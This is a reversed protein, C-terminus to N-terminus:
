PHLARTKTLLSKQQLQKLQFQLATIERQQDQVARILVATLQQYRVGNVRGLKDRGVLRDDTQAVEEAILGVQRGLHAPNYEPKLEYSVPKLAMVESLGVDLLEIAQKFRRSSLLCTTTTDVTFIGTGTTWCLTGTQAASTNTILPALLQGDGRVKFSTGGAPPGILLGYDSSNTGAAVQIGLSLGTSAGGNINLANSSNVGNVTATTKITTGAASNVTLMAGTSNSSIAVTNASSLYVGNTPITASSVNVNTCCAPAGDSRLFTSASGNVATAGATATPNAGSAGSGTSVAVGNVFLGTANLTNTGQAGGTPSGVTIGGTVINISSSGSALNIGGSGAKISTTYTGSTSGLNVVSNTDDLRILERAGSGLSLPQNSLDGFFNNGTAIACNGAQTPGGTLQAQATDVCFIFLQSPVNGATARFGAGSTATAGDDEVAILPAATNAQWIIDQASMTFSEGPGNTDAYRFGNFKAGTRGISFFNGATVVGADSVPAITFTGSSDQFTRARKTNAPAASNLVDFNPATAASTTPNWTLSSSCNFTPATTIYPIAFATAPPCVGSIFLQKYTSQAHVDHVSLALLVLALLQKLHRAM